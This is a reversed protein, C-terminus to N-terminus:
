KHEHQQFIAVSLLSTSKIHFIFGHCKGYLKTKLRGEDMTSKLTVTVILLLRKLTQQMMENVELGNSYFLHLYDDFRSNNMHCFM